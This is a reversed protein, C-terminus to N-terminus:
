DRWCTKEWATPEDEKKTYENIYSARIMGFLATAVVGIIIMGIGLGIMSDLRTFLYLLVIDSM